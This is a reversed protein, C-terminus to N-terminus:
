TPRRWGSRRVFTRETTTSRKTLCGPHSTPPLPKLCAWRQLSNPAACARGWFASRCMTFVPCMISLVGATTPLYDMVDTVDEAFDNEIGSRRLARVAAAGGGPAPGMDLDIRGPYHANLTGLQEAVVFPGHNPLM